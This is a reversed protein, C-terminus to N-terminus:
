VTKAKKPIRVAVSRAWAQVPDRGLGFRSITVAPTHSHPKAGTRPHRTAWPCRVRIAPITGNRAATARTLAAAAPLRPTTSTAAAAPAALQPRRKV